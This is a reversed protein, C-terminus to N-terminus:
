SPDPAGRRRQWQEIALAVAVGAVVAAILGLKWPWRAGILALAAAALSAGWAPAGRIMPAVLALMALIGLYGLRPSPPLWAALLIGLLSGGLWCPWVVYTAGAYFALRNVFPRERARRALYVASGPDTMLFGALWRWRPRLHKLDSSLAASYVPFRLGTLIATLAVLPLSVGAALLPLAALQTTGSLVLFTMGIAQAVSLGGQVMAVGTVVGWAFMGPLAPTIAGFAQRLRVRRAPRALLRATPAETARAGARPRDTSGL